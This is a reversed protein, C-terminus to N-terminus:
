AHMSYRGVFSIGSSGHWSSSSGAEPDAGAALLVPAVGCWGVKPPSCLATSGAQLHRCSFIGPPFGFAALYDSILPYSYHSDNLSSYWISWWFFPPKWGFQNHWCSAYLAWSLLLLLLLKLNYCYVHLESLLCILCAAICCAVINCCNESISPTLFINSPVCDIVTVRSCKVVACFLSHAFLM